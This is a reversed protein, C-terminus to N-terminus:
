TRKFQKCQAPLEPECWEKDKLIDRAIGSSLLELYLAIIDCSARLPDAKHM